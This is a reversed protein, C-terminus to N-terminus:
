DSLADVIKKVIGPGEYIFGTWVQLLTAGSKMKERADNGSFIGGSAIFLTDGQLATSVKSLMATSKTFLPRGSLGGSETTLAKSSKLNKRDLTTNAIILGHLNIEEALDIVDQLQADSLDPAIKLLLPKNASNEKQLTTLIKHLASKEQLDRLGSTNPSSVNVVFYDAYRYLTKYCFLYDKWADENPTCKNKGINAGIILDSGSSEERYRQLRGAIIEAGDNNFGM